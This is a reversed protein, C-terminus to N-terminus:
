EEAAEGPACVALGIDILAKVLGGLNEVFDHSNRVFGNGVFDHM